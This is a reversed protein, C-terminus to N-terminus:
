CVLSSEVLWESIKFRAGEADRIGKEVEHTLENLHVHGPILDNSRDTVIATISGHKTNRRKLKPILFDESRSAM